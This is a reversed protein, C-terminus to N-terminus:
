IKCFVRESFDQKVLLAERVAKDIPGSILYIYLNSALKNARLTRGVSQDHNVFSYDQSAYVTCRFSPLEYGASIGSQAIVVCRENKEAENIFFGRGKTQGTLIYVTIGEKRLANAILEIQAIYRAFILVKEYQETIDIIADIKGTEFTQAKEFENGTLVGQEVQHKKGTLVIPDPYLMPLEKLAKEQSATLPIHKVIHTQEPVDYFDSLRGTFGLGKVVKALRDKTESDKKPAWIEVRGPMPLKIMFTQRWKYFDWDKGLLWATALVAMPNKVPTATCLYLRKPNTRELYEKTIEFIQSAKPIAQRNKYRLNATLGSLLHSEDLIVTDFRPLTPAEKKFEEKSMVKLYSIKHIGIKDLQEEWTRTEKITKPVVVLTNGEALYLSILSKGTGCGLSLLAKLPDKNIIDQQYSYPKM